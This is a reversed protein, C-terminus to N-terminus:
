AFRGRLPERGTRAVHGNSATNRSGRVGTHRYRDLGLARVPGFRAFEAIADHLYPVVPTVEGPYLRLEGERIMVDYQAGMRDHRARVSLPPTDPFAGRVTIGGNEGIAAASCMSQSGGLDIGGYIEGAPEPANPDICSRWKSLSIITEREPDVDQNLDYARFHSENGPSAEARQAADEM